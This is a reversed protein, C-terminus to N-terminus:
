TRSASNVIARINNNKADKADVDRKLSEIM